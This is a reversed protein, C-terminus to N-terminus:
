RTLCSGDRTGAGQQGAGQQAGSAQRGVGAGRGKQMGRGNQMGTGDAPASAGGDALNTFAALHNQSGAMLNELVREVDAPHDDALAGKLDAIDLKEIRIGVQAAAALSDEGQAVLSDYLAQVEPDDFEGVPDGVTPDTVGYTAMVVRLADQHRSEARAINDFTRVDYLDGLTTYVDHALKEEAVMAQLMSATEASTAASAPVALMVGMPVAVAISAGAAVLRHTLAQNNKQNRITAM